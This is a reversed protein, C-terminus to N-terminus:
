DGCFCSISEDSFIDIQQGNYDAMAQYSPQDGRFSAGIKAEQDIWWQPDIGDRILSM